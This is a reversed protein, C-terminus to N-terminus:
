LMPRTPLDFGSGDLLYNMARSKTMRAIRKNGKEEREKEEKYLIYAEFRDRTKADLALPPGYPTRGTRSM